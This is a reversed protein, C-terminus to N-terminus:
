AFRFSRITEVLLEEFHQDAEIPYLFTMTFLDNVLLGLRNEAITTVEFHRYRVGSDPDTYAAERAYYEEPDQKFSFQKETEVEFENLEAALERGRDFFAENQGGAIIREHAVIINMSPAELDVSSVAYLAGPYEVVKWGEPIDLLFRPVPRFEHPYNLTTKTVAPMEGVM